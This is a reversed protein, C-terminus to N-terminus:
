QVRWLSNGENNSNGNTIISLKLHNPKSVNKLNTVAMISSQLEENGTNGFYFYCNGDPLGTDQEYTCSGGNKDRLKLPSYYHFIISYISILQFCELYGFVSAVLDM